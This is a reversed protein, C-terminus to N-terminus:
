LCLKDKLIAEINNGEWYPIRLLDIDHSKCYDNKIKDHAVTTNHQEESWVPRFHHQGDFEICINYDPLYFDFPLHNKDKCDDFCKEQVFNVNNSELYKRIQKERLSERCSCSYCQHVGAIYCEFSTTYINGCSCLIDLNCEKRNKYDEKNLLKNGNISNVYKEVYDKDLMQKKASAEIGCAPCGAGCLLAWLNVHQEGHNKCFLRVTMHSSTYEDETTLLTYGKQKCLDRARNLLNKSNKEMAVESAKKYKCDGCADKDNKKHMKTLNYYYTEYEKGCYDCVVRVRAKSQPALHKAIVSFEDGYNTFEYGLDVFRKKNGKGWKVNVIQNEDFM